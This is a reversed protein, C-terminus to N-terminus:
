SLTYFLAVTGRHDAFKVVACTSDNSDYTVSVVSCDAIGMVRESEFIATLKTVTDSAPINSVFIECREATAAATHSDVM